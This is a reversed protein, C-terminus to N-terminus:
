EAYTHSHTLTHSLSISISRGAVIDTIKLIEGSNLLKGKLAEKGIFDALYLASDSRKRSAASLPSLLASM